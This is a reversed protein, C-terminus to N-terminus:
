NELLKIDVDVGSPLDLKRLAEVTQNTPSIVIISKYTRTEFQDRAKKDVHPSRNVTYKRIKRPLPIPGRVEAGSRKVTGVIERSSSEILKHDFATLKIKIKQNIM